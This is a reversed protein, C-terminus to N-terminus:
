NPTTRWRASHSRGSHDSIDNWAASYFKSVAASSPISAVM